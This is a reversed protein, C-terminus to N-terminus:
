APTLLAWVLRHPRPHPEAVRLRAWAWGAVAATFAVYSLRVGTGPWVVGLDTLPMLVVLAYVGHEPERFVRWALVCALAVGAAGAAPAPALQALVAVPIGLLAIGTTLAWGGGRAAVAESRTGAGEAM